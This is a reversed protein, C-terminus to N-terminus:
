LPSLIIYDLNLGGGGECIMKLSHAGETLYFLFGGKLVDEGLVTVRWDDTQNSWGGTCAFVIRGAERFPIADDLWLSREPIGENCGTCYKLSIRYLGTRPVQFEHEIKQGLYNWNLFAKGAGVKKDSITFRSDDGVMDEAQLVLEASAKIGEGKEESHTKSYEEYSPLKRLETVRRTIEVRTELDLRDSGDVARVLLCLHQGFGSHDPWEAQEVRIPQGARFIMVTDKWEARWAMGDGAIALPEVSGTHFRFFERGPEQLTQLEVHDRISVSGSVDWEVRRTWESVNTFARAGHVVATGGENDMREVTVPVYCARGRPLVEDAQLMNHGAARAYKLDLDRDAYSPTGCEILVPHTGNYLSIHGQDRHSHSDYFSGGRLWLGMATQNDWDSRWTLLQNTPFFGYPLPEEEEAQLFRSFHHYVLGDVSRPLERFLNRIAWFATKQQVLLASLLYSEHPVNGVSSAGCDFANVVYGGPMILHVLWDVHRRLFPFDSVRADGNRKMAWATRLIYPTTMSGYSYGEVFAGDDGQGLCTRAFNHAGLEYADRHSEEGLGMCAHLLAATPLLWQNSGPHDARVFWPRKSQWDDVISEIEKELLGRLDARVEAPIREGLVSLIEVLATVGYGTALWNGDGGPPLKADPNYQTWGPRQIPSWTVVERLQRVIHDLVAEDGSYRAAVAMPLVVSRLQGANRCDSMALAFIEANAGAYKYRGDRQNEPLEDLSYVRKVIDGEAKKRATKLLDELVPATWPDTQAEAFIDDWPFGVYKLDGDWPPLSVQKKEPVPPPVKDAIAQRFELRIDEFVLETDPKPKVEWGQSHFTVADIQQWGTPSRARGFDHLPLSIERWGTWNVTFRDIFYDGYDNTGKSTCVVVVSAGNAAGSYAWFTLCNFARWDRVAPIGSLAGGRDASVWRLAHGGERSPETVKTGGTWNAIDGETDLLLFPAPPEAAVLCSGCFIVVACGFVHNLM